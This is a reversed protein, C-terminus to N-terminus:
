FEYNDKLYNELHNIKNTIIYYERSLDQYSKVFEPNSIVGRDYQYELKQMTKQFAYQDQRLRALEEQINQQESSYLDSNLQSNSDFTGTPSSASQMTFPPNRPFPSSIGGPTPVTFPPPRTSPPPNNPQTMHAHISSNFYTQGFPNNHLNSQGPNLDSNLNQNHNRRPNGFPIQNQNRYNSNLNKHYQAPNQFPNQGTQNKNFPNQTSFPSTSSFDRSFNAQSYHPNVQQNVPNIGPSHVYSNRNSSNNVYQPPFQNVSTSNPHNLFNRSYSRTNSNYNHNPRFRSQANMNPMSRFMSPYIIRNNPANQFSQTGSQGRIGHYGVLNYIANELEEMFLKITLRYKMMQKFHMTNLTNKVDFDQAKEIWDVLVERKNKSISFNYMSNLFQLSVKKKLKGKVEAAQLDALQVSFLLVTRKKFVGQEHYFYVRKSTILITGNKSSYGQQADMGSALKCNMGFVIKEGEELHMKSLFKNFLAQTREMFEIKDALATLRGNLPEMETQAIKEVKTREREFKQLIEAIYTLNSPHIIQIDNVYHINRQIEQFYRNAQEYVRTKGNDFLKFLLLAESELTPYHFCSPHEQRLEFLKNRQLQLRELITELPQLFARTGTIIQKYTEILEKQKDVIRAVQTSECNPCNPIVKNITRIEHSGCDDCIPRDYKDFSIQKSGCAICIYQEETRLEVCDECFVEHCSECIYQLNPNENCIPCVENPYIPM